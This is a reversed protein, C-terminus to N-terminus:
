STTELLKTMLNLYYAKNLDFTPRWHPRPAQNYVRGLKDPGYFGFELRLTQPMPSGVYCVPGGNETVPKDSRISNRYQGTDVPTSSCKIVDGAYQTAAAYVANPAKDNIDNVITQCDVPFQDWNGEFPM